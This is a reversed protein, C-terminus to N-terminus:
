TLSDLLQRNTFYLRLFLHVIIIIILQHKLPWRGRCGSCFGSVGSIFGSVGSMIVPTDPSWVPTDPESLSFCCSLLLIFRLIISFSFWDLMLAGNWMWSNMVYDLLIMRHIIDKSAYTFPYGSSRTQSSKTFM